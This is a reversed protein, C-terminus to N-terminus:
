SLLSIGISGKKGILSPGLIYFLGKEEASFPGM